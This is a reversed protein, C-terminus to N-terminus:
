ISLYWACWSLLIAFHAIHFGWQYGLPRQDLTAICSKNKILGRKTPVGQCSAIALDALNGVDAVLALSDLLPDSSSEGKISEYVKTM